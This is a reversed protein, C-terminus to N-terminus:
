LQQYQVNILGCDGGACVSAKSCQNSRSINDVDPNLLRQDNWRHGVWDPHHMADAHGVNPIINSGIENFDNFWGIFNQHAWTDVFAHTMVGLRYLGGM